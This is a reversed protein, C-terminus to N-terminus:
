GMPAIPGATMGGDVAIAQGTVFSADDSALFLVLRGVELPEGIRKLAHVNAIAKLIDPNSEFGQLMPTRIVGPCVANVRIGLAGVELAANKTLGVVGFKAANYSGLGPAGILGAVSATNVISGRVPGANRAMAQIGHKLGYFVGNLNVDMLNRHQDDDTGALPAHFEIGANNFLVDLRGHAAVADDILAKVQGSERVDTRVFRGGIEKAVRAGDQVDGIVVKAGAEAFLRATAEGIGSAGGTVVAVRGELSAM